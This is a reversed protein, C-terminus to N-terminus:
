YPLSVQCYGVERDYLSYARLLRRLRAIGLPELGTSSRADGGGGGGGGPYFMAHRPFTRGLDREITDFSPNNAQSEREALACLQAYRGERHAQKLQKVRSLVDWIEGRL